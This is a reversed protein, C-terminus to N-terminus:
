GKAKGGQDPKALGASIQAILTGHPAHNPAPLLCPPYRYILPIDFPLRRRSSFTAFAILRILHLRRLPTIKQNTIIVAM